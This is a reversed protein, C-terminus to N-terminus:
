AWRRQLSCPHMEVGQQLGPTVQLCISGPLLLCPCCGPCQHALQSLASPIWRYQSPVTRASAQPLGLLGALSTAALGSISWSTSDPALGPEGLPDQGGLLGM